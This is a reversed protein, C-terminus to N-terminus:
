IFFFFHYNTKQTILLYNISTLSLFTFLYFVNFNIFSTNVHKPIKKINFITDFNIFYYFSFRFFLNNRTCFLNINITLHLEM